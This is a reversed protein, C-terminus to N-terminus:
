KSYTKHIYLTMVEGYWNYTGKYLNKALIERHIDKNVKVRSKM